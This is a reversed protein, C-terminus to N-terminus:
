VIQRTAGETTKRGELPRGGKAMSGASFYFGSMVALEM